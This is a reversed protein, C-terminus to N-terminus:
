EDLVIYEKYIKAEITREKFKHWENDTLKGHGESTQPRKVRDKDSLIVRGRSKKQLADVIAPLPHNWGKKENAWHSSVPVMAVFEDDYAQTGLWSLNAFDSDIEGNLTANHSGHHGCKYFVCRALLERSTEKTGDSKDWDLNSWSIWNGRQADGTFLLVKRTEPLEFALVLSTNNVEHNLRLALTEAMGMWELDIKRWAEDRRAGTGLYTRAFYVSAAAESVSSRWHANVEGESVSAVEGLPTAHRPSFPSVSTDPTGGMVAARFGDLEGGSRVTQRVHFEEEGVPDLSLLLHEDRPPGLVYVHVGDTGDVKFAPQDPRLFVPGLEAKERLFRIARKNSIGDIALLGSDGPAASLIIERDGEEDLELALLQSVLNPEDEDDEALGLRDTAMTLAVLTDNFRDRLEEAFADDGDETWALWVQGIHDFSEFLRNGDRKKNFGNVHDAHEHTVAVYDLRGGTAEHIHDIVAEMDVDDEFGSGFMVGCDILLYVPNVDVAGQRPFAILFCDGQGQRYMRIRAGSTPAKMRAM